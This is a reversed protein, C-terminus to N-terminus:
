SVGLIFPDALPNRLLTQFTVGAVALAAGVLGALVVRPLRIRLLIARATEDSWDVNVAGFSIALLTVAALLVALTAIAPGLEHQASRLM